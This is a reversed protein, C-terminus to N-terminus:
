SLSKYEIRVITTPHVNAGMRGHRYNFTDPAVTALLKKAFATFTKNENIAKKCM